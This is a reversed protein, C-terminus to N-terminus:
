LVKRLVCIRLCGATREALEVKTNRRTLYVVRNGMPSQSAGRVASTAQRATCPTGNPARFTRVFM